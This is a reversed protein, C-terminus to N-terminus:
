LLDGLKELRDITSFLSPHQNAPEGKKNLWVSSIGLLGPGVVDNKWSDGVFLTTKPDASFFQLAAEYIRRDPKEWGIEDSIIIGGQPFYMEAGIAKLKAYQVEATGNTVIGLKYKKQLSELLRQLEPPAMMFGTSVEHYLENFQHAAEEDVEMGWDRLTRVFRTNRFHQISIQQRHYLDVYYTSYEQYTEFLRDADMSETLPFQRFAEKTGLEWYDEFYLLTDDLDFLILEFQKTM